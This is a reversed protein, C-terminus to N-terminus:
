RLLTAVFCFCHYYHLSYHFCLLQRPTVLRFQHHCNVQVFILRMSLAFAVNVRFETIAVLDVVVVAIAVFVLYSSTAIAIATVAITTTTTLLIRISTRLPTISSAVIFIMMSMLSLLVLLVIFCTALVNHTPLAAVVITTALGVVVIAFLFSITAITTTLLLIHTHIPSRTTIIAVAIM